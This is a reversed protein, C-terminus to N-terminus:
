KEEHVPIPFCDATELDKYHDLFRRILEDHSSAGGVAEIEDLAKQENGDNQYSFIAKEEIYKPAKELTQGDEWIVLRDKKNKGQYCISTCTYTSNSDVASYSYFSGSVKAPFIISITDLYIYKEEDVSLPYQCHLEYHGEKKDSTRDNIELANLAPPIVLKPFQLTCYIDGGALQYLETIKVDGASVSFLGSDRFEMWGIRLLAAAVLLFFGAIITNLLTIKKRYKRLTKIFMTEEKNEAEQDATVAPFPKAAQEYAKRCNDCDEIHERILSSSEDSCVNDEYLILLDQVVGCPIDKKKPIDAPKPTHKNNTTDTNNM